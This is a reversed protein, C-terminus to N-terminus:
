IRKLIFVWKDAQRCSAQQQGELYGLVKSIETIITKKVAKPYLNLLWLSIRVTFEMEKTESGNYTTM